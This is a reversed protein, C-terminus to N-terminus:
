HRTHPAVDDDDIQRGVHHQRHQDDEVVLEAAKAQEVNPDDALQHTEDQEAIQHPLVLAVVQDPPQDQGGRQPQHDGDDGSDIKASADPEDLGQVSVHREFRELFRRLRRLLEDFQRGSVVVQQHLARWRQFRRWRGVILKLRVASDRAM